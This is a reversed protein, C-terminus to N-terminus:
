IGIRKLTERATTVKLGIRTDLDFSEWKEVKAIEASSKQLLDRNGDEKGAEEWLCVAMEYHAVPLTWTDPHDCAKLQQLQYTFVIDQLMAKAPQIEGLFRLCAAKLLALIAKEDPVEKPFCENRTPDNFWALCELSEQLQSSNMRRYGSWFYCMEETPSVGVADVFECNWLKARHDWKTIKRLVFTDFPLQRAMFRKKGTSELVKHMYLSAKEAYEKARNRDLSRYTRYLEVYCAGAIYYYLGHSWSNLETCKIFGTACEEYRHLYMCNLSRDFLRLAEIQRLSAKGGQDMVEIAQELQRDTALMRAEELLWLRSKPYLERMDFLLAKLRKEPLADRTLIDCYAIASNHFALTFLGALAGNINNKSQTASWLM